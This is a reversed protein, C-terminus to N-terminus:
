PQKAPPTQANFDATHSIIVIWRGGRKAMLFNNYGARYPWDSGDRRRAGTMSWYNDVSALDPALYRISKVTDVRRINKYLNAFLKAHGDEVEQRTHVVEGRWNTWEVDDALSACMARADHTNWGNSFEAVVKRVDQDDTGNQAAETAAAPISRAALSAACILIVIAAIRVPNASSSHKRMTQM